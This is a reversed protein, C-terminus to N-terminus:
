PRLGAQGMYDELAERWGRMPALGLAEARRSELVGNLPRRAVGERPQTAVPEIEAEVGALGLIAETFELWSCSGSNTLHLLGTAGADLAALVGAALDATFTPTLRQDAVMTVRGQDRARGLVRQVFNGGKIASGRLGYLGATRIVLADPAYALALREGALKSTAYVSQPAPADDEGYPEPREGDFVYNTSFHALRAGQRASAGALAKVATANVAFAQAEMRECGDVDHFAATNIVRAPAIAAFTDAVGDADTVDLQHRSLLHPDGGDELLPALDSALAGDGGTVLTPGTGPLHSLRASAPNTDGQRRPRARV